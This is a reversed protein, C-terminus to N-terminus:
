KDIIFAPDHDSLPITYRKVEYSDTQYSYNSSDFIYDGYVQYDVDFCCTKTIIKQILKFGRFSITSNQLLKNGDNFDGLIIIRKLIIDNDLINDIDILKDLLIKDINDIHPAHLNIILLCPGPFYVILLGRENGPPGITSINNIITGNGFLGNKVVIALENILYVNHDKLNSIITSHYKPNVEQLAIIHFNSIFDIANSTCLSINKDDNWGGNYINKCFDVMEKESGQSINSIINYGMNLTCIKYKLIYIIDYYPDKNIINYIYPTLLDLNITILPTLSKDIIIKNDDLHCYKGTNNKIYQIIKTLM